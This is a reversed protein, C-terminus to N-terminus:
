ITEVTAFAKRLHDPVVLAASVEMYPDSFRLPKLRDPTVVVGAMVIDVPIKVLEGSLNALDVPIFEPKVGLDKALLVAMDVDFGVLRGEDNLYSFPLSSDSYGVRLVGRELLRELLPKGLDEMPLDPVESYVKNIEPFIPSGMENIIQEKDFANEVATSFYWRMGLLAGGTMVLTFVGVAIANRWRITLHGTLAATALLTFTLLNMAALLTATRGNVIGTVVYLQYLDSPLRMQDLMFPLAVDVGGFFSLLGSIWVEGNERFILGM